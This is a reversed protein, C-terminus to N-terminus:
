DEDRKRHKIGRRYARKSAIPQAASSRRLEHRNRWATLGAREAPQASACDASEASAHAPPTTSNM